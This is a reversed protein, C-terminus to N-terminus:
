VRHHILEASGRYCVSVSVVIIKNYWSHLTSAKYMRFPPRMRTQVYEKIYVELIRIVVITNMAYEAVPPTNVVLVTKM